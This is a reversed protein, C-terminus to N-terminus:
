KWIVSIDKFEIDFHEGTFAHFKFLKIFKTDSLLGKFNLKMRLPVNTIIETNIKPYSVIEEYTNGVLDICNGKDVLLEKNANKNKILVEMTITQAKINGLCKVLKYEINDIVVEQSPQNLSVIKRLYENELKISDCKSQSLVFTKSLAILTFVLIIRKM